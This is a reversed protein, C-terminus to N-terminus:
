DNKIEGTFEEITKNQKRSNCSRCCLVWNDIGHVGGRSLPVVHELCREKPHNRRGCGIQMTEHCYYCLNRQVL